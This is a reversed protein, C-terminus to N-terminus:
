VPLRLGEALLLSRIQGSQAESLTESPFACAGSPVIGRLRLAEKLAPLFPQSVAYLSMLRNIRQQGAAIGDPDGQRCARVWASTFEPVVNSLGAIAGSGGSLVNHAFNEDFGSYVEFSPIRSKVTNILERTHDMGTITDKIGVVNAHKEAIRLVTGAQLANGTTAPFNYIYLPGHIERALTSYYHFLAEQSLQFYYPPLIMVADAGQELCFDAFAIMETKEMATAGIILRVRHAICAAAFRALERRQAPSMAFFEGASGEALIGDVGNRILHEYLRGQSETDLSGDERFVTVAPSIYAAEM